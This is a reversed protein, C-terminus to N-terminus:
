AADWVRLEEYGSPWTDSTACQILRAIAAENERQSLLLLQDSLVWVGCRFPEKKEVGIMHVPVTEGTVKAVLSRYFALQNSYGYRKADAEFWTLDDCSKLDVIGRSPNVWDIRSQCPIGRYEARVVGEPVGEKLLEQARPHSLIAEAMEDVLAGQDDSLCERGKAAEGAVWDMFTQTSTGFPKGTKPNVPAGLTFRRDYEAQGELALMHFARGIVYAPRDIEEVLGLKKRHYLEPCKRFDALAHSTLNHQAKERYDSEPERILFDLNM